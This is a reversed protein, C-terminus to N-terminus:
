QIQQYQFAYKYHNANDKEFEIGNTASKSINRLKNLQLHLMSQMNQVHTMVCFVVADFNLTLWINLVQRLTFACNQVSCKRFFFNYQVRLFFYQVHAGLEVFCTGFMVVCIYQVFHWHISCKNLVRTYLCTKVNRYKEHYLIMVSYM